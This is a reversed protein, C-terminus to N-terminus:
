DLPVSENPLVAARTVLSIGYALSPARLFHSGTPPVFDKFPAYMNNTVYGLRGVIPNSLARALVVYLIHLHVVSCWSEGSEVVM